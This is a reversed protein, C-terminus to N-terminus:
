PRSTTHHSYVLSMSYIGRRVTTNRIGDVLSLLKEYVKVTGGGPERIAGDLEASPFEEIM